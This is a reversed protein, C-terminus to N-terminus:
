ETILGDLEDREWDTTGYLPTGVAQQYLNALIMAELQEIFAKISPNQKLAALKFTQKKTIHKKYTKIIGRRGVVYHQSVIEIEGKEWDFNTQIPRLAMKGTKTYQATVEYVVSTDTVVINDQAKVSFSLIFLALVALLKKM